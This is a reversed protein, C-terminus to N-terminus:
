AVAVGRRAYSVEPFLPHRVDLNLLAATGDLVDGIPPTLAFAPWQLTLYDVFGARIRDSEFVQGLVAVRPTEPGNLGVRRLAAQVSESLHAAAKDMIMGAVRDTKALLNVKGAYSAIRATKDPDSQIELYAHELDPFDQAFMETLATLQRRGDYGRMAAEFATRGIWFASGADGLIWGWGDVRASGLPGVGLCITGTGAAIMAGHGQGLSGLFCTISDHALAVEAFGLPSLEPTLEHATEGGLGSSGLALSGPRVEPHDALFTKVTQIWQPPLPRDTRVGPYSASVFGNDITARVKCTSQGADLAIFHKM